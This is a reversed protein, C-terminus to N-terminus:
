GVTIGFGNFAAYLYYKEWFIFFIDWFKLIIKFEDFVFSFWAM